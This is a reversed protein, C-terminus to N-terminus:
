GDDRLHHRVGSAMEPPAEHRILWRKRDEHRGYGGLTRGAHVVRHCPVFLEIPCRALANGAARGGRPSGAEAAVDGYTRLEGFPIRATAALARRPFGTRVLRLDPPASFVRRTGAFYGRVERAIPALERAARHAPTDIAREASELVAGQEEDEFSTLVVGEDSVVITLEGLPTPVTTFRLKVGTAV